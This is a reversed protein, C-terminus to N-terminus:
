SSFVATPVLTNIMVKVARVPAPLWKMIPPMGCTRGRIRQIRNVKKHARIAAFNALLALAAVNFRAVPTTSVINPAAIKTTFKTFYTKHIIEDESFACQCNFLPKVSHYSVAQFPPSKISSSSYIVPLSFKSVSNKM